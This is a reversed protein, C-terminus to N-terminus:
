LWPVAKLRDLPRDGKKLEATLEALGVDEMQHKRRWRRTVKLGLVLALFLVARTGCVLTARPECWYSGTKGIVGGDLFPAEIHYSSVNAASGMSHERVPIEYEECARVVEATEPADAPWGQIGSNRIRWIDRGQYGGPQTFVRSFPKNAFPGDRLIVPANLTPAEPDPAGTDKSSVDATDEPGGEEALAKELEALVGSRTTQDFWQRQFDPIELLGDKLAVTMRRLHGQRCYEGAIRGMESNAAREDLFVGHMDAFKGDGLLSEYTDEQLVVFIPAVSEPSQQLLRYLWPFTSAAFTETEVSPAMAGEDSVEAVVPPLQAAKDSTLEDWRGNRYIAQHAFNWISSTGPIWEWTNGPREFGPHRFLGEAAMPGVCAYIYGGDSEYYIIRAPDPKKISM